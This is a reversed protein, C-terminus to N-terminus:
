REVVGRATLHGGAGAEKEAGLRDYAFLKGSRGKPLFTSFILNRYTYVQISGGLTDTM